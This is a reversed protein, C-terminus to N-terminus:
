LETNRKCCELYLWELWLHQDTQLGSVTIRITVIEGSVVCCVM